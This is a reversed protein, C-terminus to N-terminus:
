LDLFEDEELLQEDLLQEDLGCPCYCGPGNCHSHLGDFCEDCVTIREGAKM